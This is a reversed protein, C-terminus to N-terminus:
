YGEMEILIIGGTGYYKKVNDESVIISDDKYVFDSMADNVLKKLNDPLDPKTEKWVIDGAEIRDMVKRSFSKLPSFIFHMKTIHVRKEFQEFGKPLQLRIQRQYDKVRVDYEKPQFHGLIHNGKPGVKKTCYSRVSQKPMPEGFLKLSIKRMKTPAEPYDTNIDLWIPEVQSKNVIKHTHRGADLNVPKTKKEPYWTEKERELEIKKAGDIFTEHTTKKRPEFQGPSVEVLNLRKLDAETFRENPM